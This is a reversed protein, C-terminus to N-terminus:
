TAAGGDFVECLGAPPGGCKCCVLSRLSLSMMCAFASVSHAGRRVRCGQPFGSGTLCCSFCPAGHRCCPQPRLRQCHSCQADVCGEAAAAAGARCTWPVFGPKWVTGLAAGAACGSVRQRRGRQAHVHGDAAGAARPGRAHRARGAASGARGRADWPVACVPAGGAGRGGPGGGPPPRGHQVQTAWASTVCVVHAGDALHCCSRSVVVCCCQVACAAFSTQFTDVEM